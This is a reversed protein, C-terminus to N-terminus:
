VQFWGKELTAHSCIVRSSSERNFVSSGNQMVLQDEETGIILIKVEQGKRGNEYVSHDYDTKDKVAMKLALNSPSYLKDGEKKPAMGMFQKISGM